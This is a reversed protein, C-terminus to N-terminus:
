PSRLGKEGYKVFAPRWGYQGYQVEAWRRVLVMMVLGEPLSGTESVGQDEKWQRRRRSVKPGCSWGTMAEPGLPSDSLMQSGPSSVSLPRAVM